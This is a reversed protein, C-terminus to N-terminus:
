LSKIDNETLKKILDGKTETSKHSIGNELCLRLLEDKSLSDIGIEVSKSQYIKTFKTKKDDVSRWLEIYADVRNEIISFTEM